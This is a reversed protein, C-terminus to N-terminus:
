HILEVLQGIKSGILLAFLMIMHAFRYATLQDSARESVRENGMNGEWTAGAVGGKQAVHVEQEEWPPM